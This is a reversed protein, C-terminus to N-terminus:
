MCSELITDSFLQSCNEHHQVFMGMMFNFNIYNEPIRIPIKV